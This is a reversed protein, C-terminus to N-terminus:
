NTNSSGEVGVEVTNAAGGTTTTSGGGTNFSSSNGGTNSSTTVTTTVVSTNTQSVSKSSGNVVFVGNTSLAGNGVIRIDTTSDDTDEEAATNTNTNGGIGITVTNRANGTTISNIGGTNFSSTNNGTKAKSTVTTTAVTTNTQTVSNSIWNWINAKNVSLAGNHRVRVTTSAFSAPAVVAAVMSGIVAASVLKQKINMYKV